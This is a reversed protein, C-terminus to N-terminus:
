AQQEQQQAMGQKWARYQNRIVWENNADDFSGGSQAGEEPTYQRQLNIWPNGDAKLSAQQSEFLHVDDHAVVSM